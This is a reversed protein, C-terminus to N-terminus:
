REGIEHGMASGVVTPNGCADTEGAVSDWKDGAPQEAANFPPYAVLQQANSNPAFADSKSVSFSHGYSPVGLLIQNSPFLASTWAGIARTASGQQAGSPACTDNLPANPGVGSPTWTGWIDYVM